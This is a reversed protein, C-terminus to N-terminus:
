GRATVVLSADEMVKLTAIHLRRQPCGEPRSRCADTKPYGTNLYDWAAYALRLRGVRDLFPMAGGPGSVRGGTALLPQDSARTCPGAPSSCRAYGTAYSDNAYSGGSYFLYYHKRFRIMAPNEILIGEWSDQTTLLHTPASLVRQGNPSLRSIVLQSPLGPEQDRKWLLYRGGSVGTFFAPDIAGRSRPCILPTRRRDVFGRLPSTSTSTSICFKRKNGRVPTAYAHVYTRGFRAVTPAWTPAVRRSGVRRSAAWSAVNRLGEGRARWHVLDTSTMVPLNLSAITTSYAYYVQGIKLVTPDPFDGRYPKGPKFPDSGIPNPRARSASANNVPGFAVLLLAAGLVCVLLARARTPSM